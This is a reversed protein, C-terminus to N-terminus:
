EREIEWFTGLGTMHDRRFRGCYMIEKMMNMSIDEYIVTGKIGAYIENTSMRENRELLDYVNQLVKYRWKVDKYRNIYPFSLTPAHTAQESM